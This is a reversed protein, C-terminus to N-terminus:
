GGGEEVECARVNLMIPELILVSLLGLNGM